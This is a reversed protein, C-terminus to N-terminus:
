LKQVQVAKPGKDGEETAFSVHDGERISEFKLPKQLGSLHFFLDKGGGNDPKIFGFGRDSVLRSVVGTMQVSGNAFTFQVM